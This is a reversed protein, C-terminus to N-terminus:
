RPLLSLDGGSPKEVGRLNALVKVVARRLGRDRIRNFTTALEFADRRQLLDFLKTAKLAGDSAPRV